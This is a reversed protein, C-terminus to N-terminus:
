ENLDYVGLDTLVQKIDNNDLTKGGYRNHVTYVVGDYAFITFEDKILCQSGDNLTLIEVNEYGNGSNRTEMFDVNPYYDARILINDNLSKSYLYYEICLVSVINTDGYSRVQYVSRENAKESLTFNDNFIPTLGFTEYVEDLTELEGNFAGEENLAFNDPLTFKQPTPYFYVVDEDNVGYYEAIRGYSKTRPMNAGVILSLAAAAAAAILAIRLPKKSKRKEEGKIANAAIDKDINSIAEYLQIQKDM